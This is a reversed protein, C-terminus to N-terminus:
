TDAALSTNVSGWVSVSLFTTRVSNHSSTWVSCFYVGVCIGMRNQALKVNDTDAATETDTETDPLTFADNVSVMMVLSQKCRNFNFVIFNHQCSDFMFQQTFKVVGLFQPSINDLKLLIFPTQIYYILHGVYRGRQPVLFKNLISCAIFIELCLPLHDVCYM